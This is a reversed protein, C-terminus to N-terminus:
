FLWLGFLLSSFFNMEEEEKEDVEVEVEFNIRPCERTAVIILLSHLIISSLFLWSAKAVIDNIVGTLTAVWVFKM